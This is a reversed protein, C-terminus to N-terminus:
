QYNRLDQELENVVSQETIFAEKQDNQFGDIQKQLEEVLSREKKLKKKTQKYKENLANADVQSQEIENLNNQNRSIVLQM